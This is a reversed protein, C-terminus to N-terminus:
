SDELVLVPAQLLNSADCAAAHAELHAFFCTLFLSLGMQVRNSTRTQPSAAHYPAADQLRGRLSSALTPRLSVGALHIEGLLRGMWLRFGLQGM